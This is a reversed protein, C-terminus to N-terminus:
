FDKVGSPLERRQLNLPTLAYDFFLISAMADRNEEGLDCFLSCCATDGKGYGAGVIGVDCV